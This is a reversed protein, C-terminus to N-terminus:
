IVLRTGFEQIQHRCQVPFVCRLDLSRTEPHVHLASLRLATNHRNLPYQQQVVATKAKDKYGKKLNGELKGDVTKDSCVVFAAYYKILPRISIPITLHVIIQDIM